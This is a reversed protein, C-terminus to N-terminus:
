RMVFILIEIHKRADHIEHYGLKTTPCPRTPSIVKIRTFDNLNAM